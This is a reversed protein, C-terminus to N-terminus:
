RCSRVASRAELALQLLLHYFLHISIRIPSPSADPCYSGLPCVFSTGSISGPPCYYGSSCGICASLGQQKTASNFTGGPCPIAASANSPCYSGAPCEVVSGFDKMVQLVQQQSLVSPFMHLEKVVVFAPLSWPDSFYFPNNNYMASGGCYGSGTLVGNAYLQVYGSFSHSFAIHSWYGVVLNPFTMSFYPNQPCGSYMLLQAGSILYLAPNRYYGGDGKFFVNMTQYNAAYANIWFSYTYSGSYPISSAPLAINAQTPSSQNVQIPVSGSLVNSGGPCYYGSPCLNCSTAGAINSFTGAPCAACASGNSSFYGVPCNSPLCAYITKVNFTYVNPLYEFVSAISGNSSDCLYNVITLRGDDGNSLQVSIGSSSNSFIGNWTVFLCNAWSGLNASFVGSNVVQCISSKSSTCM